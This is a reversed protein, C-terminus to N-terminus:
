PKNDGNIKRGYPTKVDLLLPVLGMRNTLNHFIERVYPHVIDLVGTAGFSQLQETDPLQDNSLQFVATMTVRASMATHGRSDAVELEYTIHYVVVDDAARVMTPQVRQRDLSLPLSPSRLKLDGSIHSLRLEVLSPKSAVLDAADTTRRSKTM